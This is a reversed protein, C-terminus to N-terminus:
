WQEIIHKGILATLLETILAFILTIGQNDFICCSFSNVNRQRQNEPHPLSCTATTKAQLPQWYEIFPHRCGIPVYIVWFAVSFIPSVGNVSMRMIRCRAHQQQKEWHLCGIDSLDIDAVLQFMFLAVHWALFRQCETSAGEQFPATVTNSDTRGIFAALVNTICLLSWIVTYSGYM